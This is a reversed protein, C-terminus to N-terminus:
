WTRKHQNGMGGLNCLPLAFPGEHIGECASSQLEWSLFMSSPLYGPKEFLLFLSAGEQPPINVWRSLSRVALIVRLFLGPLSCELMRPMSPLFRCPAWCGQQIAKGLLLTFVQCLAHLSFFAHFFLYLKTLKTINEKPNNQARTMYIYKWESVLVPCFVCDSTLKWFVLSSFEGSKRSSGDRNREKTLSAEWIRGTRRLPINPTVWRHTIIIQTKMKLEQVM